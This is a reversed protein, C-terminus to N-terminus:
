RHLFVRECDTTGPRRTALMTMNHSNAADIVLSDKLSGLPYMIGTVGNTAALEVVDPEPMYADSVMFTGKSRLFQKRGNAGNAKRIAMDAADIRSQQGAGIGHTQNETGIVIVNSRTWYAIPWLFLAAKIEEHTPQRASVVEFDDATRTRIIHRQEVLFGGRVSKYNNGDDVVESRIDATLKVVRLDKRGKLIELSEPTYEPAFIVEVNKEPMVLEGAIADDITGSTVHVGGFSCLPDSSWARQFAQKISAGRGVGSPIEHKVIVYVSEFQGSQSALERVLELGLDMDGLNIFGLGRGEQLIESSVITPGEVSDSVLFAAPDGPNHGYRLSLRKSFPGLTLSDPFDEGVKRRYQERRGKDLEAM